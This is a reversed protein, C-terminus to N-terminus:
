PLVTQSVYTMNPTAMGIAGRWSRPHTVKKVVGVAEDVCTIEMTDATLKTIMGVSTALRGGTARGAEEEALLYLLYGVGLMPSKESSTLEDSLHSLQPYRAKFARKSEVNWFFYRTVTPYTAWFLIAKEPDSVCPMETRSIGVSLYLSEVFAESWNGQANDFYRSNRRGEEGEAITIVRGPLTASVSLSSATCKSKEVYAIDGRYRTEYYTADHDKVQVRRGKPWYYACRNFDRNRPWVRDENLTAFSKGTPLQPPTWIGIQDGRIWGLRGFGDRVRFWEAGDENAQEYIIFFDNTNKTFIVEKGDPQAYFRENLRAVWAYTGYKPFVNGTVPTLAVDDVRIHNGLYSSSSVGIFVKCVFPKAGDPM